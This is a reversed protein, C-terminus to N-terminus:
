SQGEGKRVKRVEIFDGPAANLTEANLLVTLDGVIDVQYVQALSDPADAKRETAEDTWRFGCRRCRWMISQARPIPMGYPDNCQACSVDLNDENAFRAGTTGDVIVVSRGCAQCRDVSPLREGAREITIPTVVYKDM